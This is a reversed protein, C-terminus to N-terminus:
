PALPRGFPLKDQWSGLFEEARYCAGLLPGDAHRRVGDIVEAIADSVSATLDADSPSGTPWSALLPAATTVFDPLVAVDARRLVALARATVPIPAWPVVAAGGFFEAAQHTLAGMKSGPFLLDAPAGFVKWAPAADVGLNSVLDPGHAAHAAALDSATVGDPVVATGKPTSVATIGVGAAELASAVGLSITDVGEIAATRGSLDGGLAAGAAAVTGAGLLAPDHRREDRPDAAALGALEHASVGKGADVLFRGEAVMPTVEEVFAAVGAERGDGQANIGASAGGVRLGFVAGAYTTSRALDTAGGQLIKRACRGIGVSQEADSLDFAVFADTSELKHITM